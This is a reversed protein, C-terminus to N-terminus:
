LLAPRLKKWHPGSNSETLLKLIKSFICSQYIDICYNVIKLRFFKSAIQKHECESQYKRIGNNQGIGRVDRFKPM